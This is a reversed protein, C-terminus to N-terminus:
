PKPAPDDGKKLYRRVAARIAAISAMLPLFVVVAAVVGAVVKLITLLIHVEGGDGGCASVAILLTAALLIQIMSRRRDNSIGTM